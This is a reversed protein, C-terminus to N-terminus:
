RSAEERAAANQADAVARLAAVLQTGPDDGVIPNDANFVDAPYHRNLIIEALACLGSFSGDLAVVELGDVDPGEVVDDWEGTKKYITWVSM